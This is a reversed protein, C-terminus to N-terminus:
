SLPLEKPLNLIIGPFHYLSEILELSGDLDFFGYYKDEEHSSIGSNLIRPSFFIISRCVLLHSKPDKSKVRFEM